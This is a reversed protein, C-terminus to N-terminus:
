RSRENRSSRGSSEGDQRDSSRSPASSRGSAPASHSQQAPASRQSPAASSRQQVPAYSRQSPQAASRERAPASYARQQQAPEANRQSPASYSRQQPAPAVSRQAPATQSRQQIPASHRQSPQVSRQTPAQYARQQTPTVNRQGSSLSRQESQQRPSEQRSPPTARQSTSPLTNRQSPQVSRQAPPASQQRQPAPTASPNGRENRSAAPSRPVASGEGSRPNRSPAVSGSRSESPTARGGTGNAPMRTGAASSDVGTRSRAYGSSPLARGEGGRATATGTGVRDGVSRNGAGTDRPPNVETSGARAPMQRSAGPTAARERGSNGGAVPAPQQDVRGLEGRSSTAPTRSAAAQGRGVGDGREGVVRVSSREGTNASASIRRLQEGALPEGGNRAIAGRRNEFSALRSAPEHRAVVSRNDLTPAARGSRSGGVLSAQTPTAPARTLLEGRQLSGPQLRALSDAARRSSTFADQPVVTVANVANRFTYDRRPARGQVYYDNYINTVYINNVVVTNNVNVRGFYNRSVRYWPMYVDRPGLPFWGIPPGGSRVSLSWGSGGVFAVLAPAYVPRLHRPGPVWGWGNSVYVWRGYHSPAFGWPADDIWTWGWPDIWSWHGYRYPTWGPTVHRPFWVNGYENVSRWSGHTDLDSYGIMESSVYQRSPSNQLRDNRAYVWRDFDDSSPIAMQRYNDLSPDLFRISNGSVISVSANDEGYVDARGTFVTVQSSAGNPAIDVRYEGPESVVMALTPTDIEYLQGDYLHDVRLNVVGQTVQVQALQDDLNLFEISSGYDVRLTATGTELEARGDSDTWLRDGVVLPRNIQADFWSDEGSPSFSVEGGLYSLRAVRGPPDAWAMVPLLLSAAGVLAFALHKHFTRANM